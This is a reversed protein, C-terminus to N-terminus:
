LKWDKCQKNQKLLLVKHFINSLGNCRATFIQVGSSVFHKVSLKDVLKVCTFTNQL